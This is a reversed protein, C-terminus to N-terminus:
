KGGGDPEIFIFPFTVQVTDRIQIELILLPSLRNTDKSLRRSIGSRINSPFSISTSSLLCFGVMLVQKWPQYDETKEQRRKEM